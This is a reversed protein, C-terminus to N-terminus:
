LKNMLKQLINTFPLYAFLWWKLRGILTLQKFRFIDTHCEPFISKWKGIDHFKRIYFQKSDFKYHNILLRFEKEKHISKFFSEINKALEIKEIICSEEINAVISHCNTRNYHYFPEHVIVTKKSYYRLRITLASDEGMNIGDYHRIDYQTYLSKKVLKNWVAIHIEGVQLDLLGNELKEEDYNYQYHVKRNSYEKIAECCVIDAKETIAKQHMIQLMEPEVWDDSDCHLIYEGKAQDMGAFRTAALGKNVKNHLLTISSRREPYEKIVRQLIEISNDPTCDNVFIYEVDKFTQEMLSRVCREIYPAVNYIPVIVSIHPSM